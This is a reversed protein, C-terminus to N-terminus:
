SALVHFLNEIVEEDMAAGMNAVRFIETRLENQGHYIVYGYKLAQAFLTDPDRGELRFSTLVWSRLSEELLPEFHRSGATWVARVLRHYRAPRDESELIDLAVDLGIMAQINPTSPIGDAYAPVNLVPVTPYSRLERKWLVGAIGPLSELCKNSNFCVVDVSRDVEHVGLSSVADVFLRVGHRRCLQAVAALPNLIGTTTEHHVMAVWDPERAEMDEELAKLDLPAGVPVSSAWAEAGELTSLTRVMRQCYLGNDAVLVRGRVFSALGADVALSGSGHLLSLAVQGSDLGLHSLIRARVRDQLEEFEPQRHCLEVNFLNEKIRPDLNVPGPNFLIQQRSTLPM